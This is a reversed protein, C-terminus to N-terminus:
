NAYAATPLTMSNMSCPLGAVPRGIEFKLIRQFLTFVESVLRTITFLEHIIEGAIKVARNRYCNSDIVFSESGLRSPGHNSLDPKFNLYFSDDFLGDSANVSPGFSLPM